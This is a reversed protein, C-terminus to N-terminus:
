VPVQSLGALGETTPVGDYSHAIVLVPGEIAAVTERTAAADAYMDGLTAPDHGASSLAVTRTPLDPLERIVADWSWPGHCARPRLRDDTSANWRAYPHAPSEATVSRVVSM